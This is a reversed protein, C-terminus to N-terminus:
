AADRLKLIAATIDPIDQALCMAEVDDLDDHRKGATIRELMIIHNVMKSIIEPMQNRSLWDFFLEEMDESLTEVLELPVKRGQEIEGQMGQNTQYQKLQDLSAISM